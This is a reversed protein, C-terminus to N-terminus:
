WDDDTLAMNFSYSGLKDLDLHEFYIRESAADFKMWASDLGSVSLKVSQYPNQDFYKDVKHSYYANSSAFDAINIIIIPASSVFRPAFNPGRHVSLLM